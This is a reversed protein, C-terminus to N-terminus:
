YKAEIEIYPDFDNGGATFLIEVRYSKGPTLSHLFPLTIVDGVAGATGTLVTTSVDTRIGGSVDFATVVISTPNSGYPTTTIKYAVREDAGFDDIKAILRNTM